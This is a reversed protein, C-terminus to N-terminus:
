YKRVIGYGRKELLRLIGQEGPLHLAGVAVFVGGNALPIELREVMRYNREDVLKYQIRVALERAGWELLQNNIAVLGQLDRALYRDLLAQFITPLQGAYNLAEELLTIQEDESLSDFLDLQERITELGAVKKGEAQARKYLVLDLFLGTKAPPLSLLMALAWPKYHRLAVEPLGLQAAARVTKNYLAPELIDSIVRGDDLLMAVMSAMFNSAAMDVEVFLSSSEIFARDVPEPLSIVREDESHITGFIYGLPVGEKEVQFLLGQPFSLESAQISLAQIVFLVLVLRCVWRGM